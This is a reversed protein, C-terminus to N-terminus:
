SVIVTIIAAFAVNTISAVDGEGVKEKVLIL